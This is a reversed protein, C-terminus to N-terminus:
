RDHQVPKFLELAEHRRVSASCETTLQESGSLQRSWLERGTRKSLYEQRRPRTRVVPALYSRFRATPSEAARRCRSRTSRGRAHWPFRRSRRGLELKSLRWKVVFGQWTLPHQLRRQACSRFEARDLVGPIRVRFDDVQCDPLQVWARRQGLQGVAAVEFVTRYHAGGYPAPRVDNEESFVTPPDCCQDPM